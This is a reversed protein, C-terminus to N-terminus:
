NYIEIQRRMQNIKKVIEQNPMSDLGFEEDAGREGVQETRTFNESDTDVMSQRLLTPDANINHLKDKMEKIRQNLEQNSMNEFNPLSDEDM